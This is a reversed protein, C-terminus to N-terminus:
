TAALRTALAAREVETLDWMAVVLWMDARGIRRLLMPDHPVIRSWEAEWLVHYNALGRRPRLHLPPTPLLAEGHWRQNNRLFTGAPFSFVNRSQIVGGGGRWRSRPETDGAHMTVSGDQYMRVKCSLADARCLALKPWGADAGETKLGAARVSELARIVLRGQALLQYARMCERDIPASYHVHRKYQRYLERAKDRDIEIHATEM